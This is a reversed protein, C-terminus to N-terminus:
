EGLGFYKTVAATIIAKAADETIKLSGKAVKKAADVIWGRVRWPVEELQNTAAADLEPEIEALDDKTLGLGQLAKQLSAIDGATVATSVDFRDVHGIVNNGGLITIQVLSEVKAASVNEIANEAANPLAAQIELAFTLIRTRVTDVLGVITTAPIEMWARNLAMHEVFATQYLAVLDAPWQLVLNTKGDCAEYAAIPQNLRIDTAWHRHEEELVSPPLPQNNIQRGFGGLFIGKAVGISQRYDPLIQDHLYGNLENEVWRKLSENKLKYALVLCRRLLDSCKEKSDTAAAIIDELLKM